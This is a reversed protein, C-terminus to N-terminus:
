DSLLGRIEALVNNDKPEGMKLTKAIEAMKKMQKGLTGRSKYSISDKISQEIRKLDGNHSKVYNYMLLDNINNMAPYEVVTEATFVKNFQRLLPNDEVMKLSNWSTDLIKLENRIKKKGELRMEVRTKGEFYEKIENRKGTMLLFANNKNLLIETEKDYLIIEERDYISQVDSVFTIGTNNYRTWKYRRYNGVLRNLANLKDDTLKMDIDKTIHLKSFQCDKMIANEDLKCIGLRNINQLCEMFNYYCILHPYNGLLIKSSFEIKLERSRYNVYIRLEFPIHNSRRSSYLASKVEGTTTDVDRMFLEDTYSLLNKSDSVFKVTDFQLITNTKM